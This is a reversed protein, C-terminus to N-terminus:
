PRRTNAQTPTSPKQHSPAVRSRSRGSIDFGVTLLGEMKDAANRIPYAHIVYSRRGDSRPFTLVRSIHERCDFAERKLAMIEAAEREPILEDDRKGIVAAADFDHHPNDIWVYRLRRDIEAVV